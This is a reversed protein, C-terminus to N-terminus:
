TIAQMIQGQLALIYALGRQPPNGLTFRPTPTRTSEEVLGAAGLAALLLLGSWQVRGRMAANHGAAAAAGRIALVFECALAGAPKGSATVCGGACTPM